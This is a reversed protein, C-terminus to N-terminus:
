KTALWELLLKIDESKLEKLKTKEDLGINELYRATEVKGVHKTDTLYKHLRISNIENDVVSSTLNKLLMDADLTFEDIFIKRKSIISEISNNFNNM